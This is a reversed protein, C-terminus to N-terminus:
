SPICHLGDFSSLLSVKISVIHTDFPFTSFYDFFGFAAEALDPAARAPKWNPPPQTGFTVDFRRVSVRHKRDKSRLWWLDRQEKSACAADDQLNPLCGISQFYSVMMLLLSYSSFTSPGNQGSDDLSCGITLQFVLLCTVEHSYFTRLTM